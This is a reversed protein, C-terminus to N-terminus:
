GADGPDAGHARLRRHRAHRRRQRLVQSPQGRGAAPGRGGLDGALVTAGAGELMSVLMELADPEDDVVLVTVAALKGGAAAFSTRPSKGEDPPAVPEPARVPLRVTFTAGHGSGGSVAHITGGHLEVLQRVISLGLGLGGFQRTRRRTRRASAHRLRHPLFAPEIGIGTDSVVLEIATGRRRALAVARPGGAPTFKVANSLLNWVM